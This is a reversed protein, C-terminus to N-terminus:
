LLLLLDFLLLSFRQQGFINFHLIRRRKSSVRLFAAFSLAGRRRHHRLGVEDHKCFSRSLTFRRKVMLMSLLLLLM